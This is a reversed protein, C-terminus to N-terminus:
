VLLLARLAGQSLPPLNKYRGGLTDGDRGNPIRYFRPIEKLSFIFSLKIITANSCVVALTFISEPTRSMNIPANM